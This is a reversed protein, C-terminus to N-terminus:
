SGFMTNEETKGRMGLKRPAKQWCLGVHTPAYRYGRCLRLDRGRIPTRDYPKLNFLPM